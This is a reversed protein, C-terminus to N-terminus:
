IKRDSSLTSKISHFEEDHRDVREIIVAMKINLTEVSESIREMDSSLTKASEKVTDKTERIAQNTQNLVYIAMVGLASLLALIIEVEM